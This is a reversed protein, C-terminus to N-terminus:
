LPSGAMGCRRMKHLLAACLSMARALSVRPGLFIYGGVGAALCPSKSYYHVVIAFTHAAEFAAPRLWREFVCSSDSVSLLGVAV